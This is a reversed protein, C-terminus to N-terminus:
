PQEAVRQKEICGRQEGYYECIATDVDLEPLCTHNTVATGLYGCAKIVILRGVSMDVKACM